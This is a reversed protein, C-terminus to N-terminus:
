SDRKALFYRGVTAVSNSGGHSPLAQEREEDETGGRALFLPVVDGFDAIAPEDAILGAM